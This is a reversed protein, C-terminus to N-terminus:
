ILQWERADVFQSLHRINKTAVIVQHSQSALLMAEAALIVDGDLAKPATTPTGAQRAQAWLQAQSALLRAEAALIVDGDLAKDPATPKGRKRAEAWLQAALRMTDTTIPCYLLQSKLADLRKIGETKRGRILERRMEYDAIEPLVVTEGRLMLGQFWEKCDKCDQHTNDKPNTVLGLPGSDLM